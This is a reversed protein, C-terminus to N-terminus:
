AQPLRPEARTVVGAADAHFTGTRAGQYTGHELWELAAARQVHRGREWMMFHSACSIQLYAKRRSGIDGFLRINSAHLPDNEGVMLLVPLQLKAAGRANWGWYTRSPGILGGWRAGVPDAEAGARWVTEYISEDEVQGPCVVNARWRVHEGHHRTQLFMPFGPAPLKAPPRDPGDPKYNSSAWIVLREVKEPHRLTYTGTRIGGGSWGILKIREVGRRKRIFEVVADIDASESDSNTLVYPYPAHADREAGDLVGAPLRAREEPSLNRPDHQLELQSRGHGTMDMTFVDYGERALAAMWSLGPHPCDFAATSPWFGGHIMLVVKGEPARGDKAIAAPAKERVFQRMTRGAIAPVTSVHEVRHDLTLIDDQPSKM